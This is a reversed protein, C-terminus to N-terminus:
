YSGDTTVVADTVGTGLPITTITALSDADLVTIAQSARNSLVFYTDGTGDQIVRLAGLPAEFTTEQVLGEPEIASIPGGSVAPFVLIRDSAAFLLSPSCLLVLLGLRQLFSM